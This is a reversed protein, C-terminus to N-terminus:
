QSSLNLFSINYRNLFKFMASASLIELINHMGHPCIEDMLFFYKITQCGTISRHIEQKVVSAPMPVQRNLLAIM